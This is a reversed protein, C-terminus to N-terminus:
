FWTLTAAKALHITGNHPLKGNVLRHYEKM